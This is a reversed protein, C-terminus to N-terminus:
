SDGTVSEVSDDSGSSLQSAEEIKQSNLRPLAYFYLLVSV